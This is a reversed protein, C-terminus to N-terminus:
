QDHRKARESHKAADAVDDEAGARYVFKGVGEGIEADIRHSSRDERPRNSRKENERRNERDQQLLARDAPAYVGDAPIGVDRTIGADAYAAYPQRQERCAAHDRREGTTTNVARSALARASLATPRSSSTIVMASSPPTLTNPPLPLKVPTNKARTSIAARRLMRPNSCIPPSACPVTM